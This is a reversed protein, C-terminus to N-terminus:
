GRGTKDGKNEKKKIKKIICRVRCPEGSESERKKVGSTVNRRDRTEQMM